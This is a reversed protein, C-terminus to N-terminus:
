LNGAKDLLQLDTEVFVWKGILAIDQVMEEGAYREIVLNAAMVQISCLLVFVSFLVKQKM